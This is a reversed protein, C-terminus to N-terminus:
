VSVSGQAGFPAGLEQAGVGGPAAFAQAVLGPAGLVQAALEAFGEGADLEAAPGFGEGAAVGNIDGPGVAGRHGGDALEGVAVGFAVEVAHGVDVFVVAVVRPGFQEAAGFIDAGAPVDARVQFQGDGPEMGPPVSVELEVAVAVLFQVAGDM